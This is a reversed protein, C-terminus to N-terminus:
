QRVGGEVCRGSVVVQDAVKTHRTTLKSEFSPYCTAEDHDTLIGLKCLVVAPAACIAGIYRGEAKQRGLMDALPRSESLTQQTVVFSLFRPTFCIPVVFRRRARMSGRFAHHTVHTCRGHLFAVDHPAACHASPLVLSITRRLHYWM